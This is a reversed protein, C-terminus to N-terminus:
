STSDVSSIGRCRGKRGQLSACLPVLASPMLEVFRSYSVLRPFAGALHRCDHGPYFSKFNRNVLRMFSCSTPERMLQFIIRAYLAFIEFNERM